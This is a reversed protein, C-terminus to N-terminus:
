SLPGIVSLAGPLIEIQAPLAGVPEGDLELLVAGPAADAEVRRGRRFSVVPDALITGDYLKFLRPILGVGRAGAVCVVDLFGDDLRADPAIRMGSGFQRGNAAAVLALRGDCVLEGDVRLAVRAGQYSLLARV